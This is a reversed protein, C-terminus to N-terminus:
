EVSHDPRNEEGVLLLHLWEPAVKEPRLECQHLDHGKVAPDVADRPLHDPHVIAVESQLSAGDGKDDRVVQDPAKHEEVDDQGDEDTLRRRGEIVLKSEGDQTAGAM